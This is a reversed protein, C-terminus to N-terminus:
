IGATSTPVDTWTPYSASSLDTWISSVAGTKTWSTIVDELNTWATSVSVGKNDGLRVALKDTTYRSEWIGHVGIADTTFGESFEIGDTYTRYATWVRTYSDSFKIGDTLALYILWAVTMSDAFKVGDALTKYANWIHTQSDAFKVGDALLKSAVKATSDSFKVGDSADADWFEFIALNFHHAAMDFKGVPYTTWAM